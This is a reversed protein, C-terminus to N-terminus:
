ALAKDLAEDIEQYVADVEGNEIRTEDGAVVFIVYDGKVVIRGNEAKQAQVDDYMAAQDYKATRRAECAAKITDAKGKAAKVILIEDTSLSVNTYKGKYEEVDAMDIGYMGTLYDDDMEAPVTVPAVAEIASMLDDLNYQKTDGGGCGTLLTLATLLSVCLALLKKM